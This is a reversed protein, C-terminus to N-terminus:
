DDGSADCEEAAMAKNLLAFLLSPMDQVITKQEAFGPM